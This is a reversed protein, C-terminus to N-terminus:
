RAQEGTCLAQAKKEIESLFDHHPELFQIHKHMKM